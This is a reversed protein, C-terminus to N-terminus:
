RSQAIATGLEDCIRVQFQWDQAWSETQENQCVKMLITNKGPKLTARGTYQDFKSGSHYVENSMALDGNVWIKTANKSVLRIDVDQPKDSVFETYAYAVAGNHKGIVENLNVAGYDDTTKYEQWSVEGAKGDYSAKSVLDSEPGYAVDYGGKDTNDFPGILKWDVLFGFHQQLEVKEGLKKLSEYISEVQDYDRAAALAARYQKAAEPGEELKEAKSMALAVADRRMELSSDNLMKPIIRAEASADATKLWEYAMRRARPAYKQDFVIEEFATAPLVKGDNVHREVIQDAASRLWNAALPKETEIAALITPVQQIDVGSIQKWAAMAQEHGFGGNGVASVQALATNLQEQAKGLCPLSLLAIIITVQMRM